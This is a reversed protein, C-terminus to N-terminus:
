NIVLVAILEKNKYLKNDRITTDFECSDVFKFFEKYTTCVKVM